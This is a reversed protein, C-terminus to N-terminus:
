FLLLPRRIIFCSIIIRENSFILHWYEYHYGGTYCDLYNFRRRQQRLM